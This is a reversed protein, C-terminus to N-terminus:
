VAVVLARALGARARRQHALDEVPDLALLGHLRAAALHVAAREARPAAGPLHHIIRVGVHIQDARGAAAARAVVIHAAQLRAIILERGLQGRRRALRGALEVAGALREAGDVLLLPLDAELL